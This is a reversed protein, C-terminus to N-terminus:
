GFEIVYLLRLSLISINIYIFIFHSQLPIWSHKNYIYTWVICTGGLFICFKGKSFLEAFNRVFLLLVLTKPIQSTNKRYIFYNLLRSICQKSGYLLGHIVIAKAYENNYLLWMKRLVVFLSYSFKYWGHFSEANHIIIYKTMFNQPSYINIWRFITSGLLNSLM